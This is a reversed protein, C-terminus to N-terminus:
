IDSRQSLRRELLQRSRRAEKELLQMRRDVDNYQEELTWLRSELKALLKSQYELTALVTKQYISKVDRHNASADIDPPSLHKNAIRRHYEASRPDGYKELIKARDRLYEEKCAEVEAVNDHSSVSFEDGYEREASPAFSSM